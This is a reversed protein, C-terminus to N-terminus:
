KHRINLAKFIQNKLRAVNIYFVESMPRGAFKGFTRIISKCNAVSDLFTERNYPKNPSSLIAPNYKGVHDIGLITDCKIDKLALEGKETNAIVLTTGFDNDLDPALQSIGWFDGITIDARSGHPYKFPCCFCVDRITFDALFARMYLNDDHPETFYKGDKFTVTFSYNKWGTRKDRFNIFQIDSIEKNKKSCLEKLYRNWYEVEPAGHCVVEVLFLNSNKGARKSMAAVQCPTGSFMVKRGNNLDNIAESIAPSFKSYVYKSGRLISLDSINDIRRHTVNWDEDFAAGYVIGGDKIIQTALSSFVGGASSERRIKEDANHAAFVKM